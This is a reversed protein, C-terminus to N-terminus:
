NEALKGSGAEQVAGKGCRSADSPTLVEVLGSPM